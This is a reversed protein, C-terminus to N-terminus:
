LIGNAWENVSVQWWKVNDILWRDAKKLLVYKRKERFGTGQQTLVCARRPSEIVAELIAEHEPQYEPPDSFSGLRGHKREKPTCWRIFIEGLSARAQSIFADSQSPESSRYDLLTRAEWDHMDAIFRRVVEAPDAYITADGMM